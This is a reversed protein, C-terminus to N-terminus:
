KNRPYCQFSIPRTSYQAVVTNLIPHILEFTFIYGPDRVESITLSRKDLEEKQVQHLSSCNIKAKIDCTGDRLEVVGFNSQRQPSSTPSIPTSADSRGPIYLQLIPYETPESLKKLSPFSPSKKQERLFKLCAACPAHLLCESSDDVHTSDSSTTSSSSVPPSISTSISTSTSSTSSPPTLAIPGIEGLKISTKLFYTKESLIPFSKGSTRKIMEQPFKIGVFEKPIPIQGIESSTSLKIEIWFPDGTRILDIPSSSISLPRSTKIPSSDPSLKKFQIDMKIGTSPLEVLHIKNLQDEIRSYIQTHYGSEQNVGQYLEAGRNVLTTYSTTDLSVSDISGVTRLSSTDHPIDHNHNVHVSQMGNELNSIVDAKDFVGLVELEHHIPTADLSPASTTASSLTENPNTYTSNSEDSEDSTTWVEEYSNDDISNEALDSSEYISDLPNFTTSASYRACCITLYQYITPSPEVDRLLLSYFEKPTRAGTSSAGALVLTKVIYDNEKLVAYMLPTMSYVDQVEFDCGDEILRTVLRSFGLLIGLHLLNSGDELQMSIDVNSPLCNLTNLISQEVQNSSILPVESDQMGSKQQQQQQQYSNLSDMMLVSGSEPSSSTSLGPISKLIENVNEKKGTVQTHMYELARHVMRLQLQLILLKTESDDTYTFQGLNSYCNGVSDYLTINVPGPLPNEPAKCIILGSTEVSIDHARFYGFYPVMGEVFYLGRIVVDIMKRIPGHDPRVQTIRPYSPQPQPQSPPMMDSTTHADSLFSLTDTSISNSRFYPNNNLNSGDVSTPGLISNIPLDNPIFIMSAQFNPDHTIMGHSNNNTEIDLDNNIPHQQHSPTITSIINPESRHRKIIKIKPIPGEKSFKTVSRPNPYGRKAKHHGSCMIPHTFGTSLVEGEEETPPELSSAGSNSAPSTMNAIVTPNPITNTKKLKFEFIYRDKNGREGHDTSSCVVKALMTMSGTTTDIRSFNSPDASSPSLPDLLLLIPFSPGYKHCCKACASKKVQGSKALHVSIELTLPELEGRPDGTTNIAIRRAVRISPFRPASSTSSSSSYPFQNNRVLYLKILFQQGTRIEDVNPTPIILGNVSLEELQDKKQIIRAELTYASM